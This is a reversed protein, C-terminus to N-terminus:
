LGAEFAYDHFSIDFNKHCSTLVGVQDPFENSIGIKLNSDPPINAVLEEVIGSAIGKPLWAKMRIHELGVHSKFLIEGICQQNEDCQYNQNEYVRVLVDLDTPYDTTKLLIINRNCKM